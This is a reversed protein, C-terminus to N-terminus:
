NKVEEDAFSNEDCLCDNQNVTLVEIAEDLYKLSFVDGVALCLDGM